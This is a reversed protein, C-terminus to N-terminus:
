KLSITITIDGNGLLEKLGDTNQNAIRGLRTYSWSNSGYFLVIQNGSYLVIDGPSTTTQIDERPLTTGIFGVQEFGGYMSMHIEIPKEEALKRLADVSENDLWTVDAEKDGIMLSLRKNKTTDGDETKDSSVVPDTSATPTEAAKAEEAPVEAAKAEETSTETTYNNNSEVNASKKVTVKCKYKKNKYKAFIIVTGEKKATIKGKSVSAIKKDKSSWKVKKATAGRLVVRKSQGPSLVIKKKSLCISKEKSFKVTVNGEGVAKKLGEIDTIRGVKTYNYSTNFSKYFIVLCDDGYLMIDGAKIRKVKEENTPLNFNLYKYKENGNLESMRVKLPFKNQLDVATKNDYLVADFTKSGIKINIRSDDKAQVRKTVMGMSFFAVCLVFVLIVRVMKKM